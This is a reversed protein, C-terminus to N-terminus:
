FDLGVSAYVRVDGFRRGDFPAAWDIRLPYGLVVTRLGAGAGVLVDDLVRPLATGASDTPTQFVDIRGEAIIGADLFAAAQLRTLAPLPLTGPVLAALLPLRVEANALAFRDGAAENFGFGRLPLVPTAFVFDDPGEVPLSGLRPNLWTQVGAAYFRQPDPGVSLGASARLALTAGPVPAIPLYRRADGLVTGFFADPGVAVALGAAARGGRRPGFRDFVTRDETVTLRPVVFRRTRAPEALQALDTLSVGLLGVEADLRRTRSIPYRVAGVLGYNRYRFVTSNQFDPLERALHFGDLSVDRRGRLARLSLVYDANRLDLVLNTALAVRWDGLVDSFRVQTISQVGYVTDYSGAATVVDPTFRLRYRRAILRGQADRADTPPPPGAPEPRPGALFALGALSDPAAAFPRGLTDLRATRASDARALLVTVLSDLRASERPDLRRPRGRTEPPRADAADRLFPNERLRRESAVALTPTGPPPAEGSRRLAWVTPALPGAPLGPVTAHSDGALSDGPLWRGPALPDRLFFVSPRGADLALLAARRGDRSLSVGLAGTILDTLPRPEGDPTLEYLNAVGNRDSLFVVRERGDDGLAVAADTDDAFADSTLRDLTGTALTLRYLSTPTRGLGRVDLRGAAAAATDDTGLALADGRDSHFVLSRGDPAWAPAHDAYLDDTLNAAAGTEPHVLFLDSQAGVTAEAALHEGDPSWALALVADLGVPRVLRVSGTAVDVFAIADSPGSTVAVALTRGDPSWALGASALRFSEFAAAAQGAVLVRPPADGTTEALLVDFTGERAAVVAVRDGLPSLAPRGNYLTGARRATLLPRAIEAVADRAAAEPFHAPRLAAQWRESLDAVTLGTAQRIADPVDRGTQLRSLIETIKERGYEAAVFDWFAQGGRYADYGTLRDAPPLAGDLLADRIYSDTATDWGLSAYEALGENFWLPIRLRLGSRILAQVSGGYVLSNLVAHVMEHHVVRRFQRLSGTFPVAIRNKFGETVGGIGDAGVPLDAVNTVAFAAATPYIVLPIRSTVGEGFLAATEAYAEEAAEAAFAALVYGGPAGGPREYFYVDVHDTQVRRWEPSEYRVRNQGFAFYQARAPVAALVALLVLVLRLPM